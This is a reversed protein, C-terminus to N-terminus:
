RVPIYTSVMRFGTRPNPGELTKESVVRIDNGASQWDGGMVVDEDFVMENANGAMHYLGHGNPFYSNSPALIDPQSNIDMNSFDFDKKDIVKFDGNKDRKINHEGIYAFNALYNGKSNRTYAGGWPYPSDNLGGKAAYIWELKSPLRFDNFNSGPYKALMQKTFWTCYLKAGEKSINVVPYNDYAPHNFYHNTYGDVNFETKWIASDVMAKKLDGLREQKKLDNLFLRYEKNTVETPSMYMSMVSITDKELYFTGAPIYVLNEKKIKFKKATFSVALTVALVLLIPKM